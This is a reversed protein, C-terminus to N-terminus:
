TASAPKADGLPQGSGPAAEPEEQNIVWRIQLKEPVQGGSPIHLLLPAFRVLHWFAATDAWYYCFPMLLSSCPESNAEGEKEM